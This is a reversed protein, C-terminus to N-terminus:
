TLGYLKKLLEEDEEWQIASEQNVLPNLNSTAKKIAEAKMAPDANAYFQYTTSTQAHGLWEGVLALPMGNRYLHMARSHRWMHPYIHEPVEPCEVRAKDAYKRVFAEVADESLISYGTSHHVYFIPRNPDAVDHMKRVYTELFAATKEMIPVKRIVGGKGHLTIYRGLSDNTLHLDENKLRIIEDIRGGTDYMTLMFGYDRYGTKKTTNPQKLIAELATESFFDIPKNEPLKKMPLAKLEVYLAAAHPDSKGAYKYFSRLASLRQNRTNAGCARKEELYQLFNKPSDLPINEYSLDYLACGLQQKNYELFLNLTTRYSDITKQAVGKQTPLYDKLYSGISELLKMSKNNKM